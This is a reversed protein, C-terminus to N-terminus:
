LEYLYRSFRSNNMVYEELYTPTLSENLAATVKLAKSVNHCKIHEWLMSCNGNECLLM